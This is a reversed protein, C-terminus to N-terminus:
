KRKTLGVILQKEGANISEPGEQQFAYIAQM